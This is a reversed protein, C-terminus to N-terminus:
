GGEPFLQIDSDAGSPSNCFQEPVSLTDSELEGFRRRDM